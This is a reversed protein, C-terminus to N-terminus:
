PTFGVSRWLPAPTFRHGNTVVLSIRRLNAVNQLPDADVVILDARKGATVTGVEREVGMVRAPVLTAAQIAELPTFGAQAYLEIERHLSYGPVAQDTGAVIPVGAKHLAGILQLFAQLQRTAAAEREAPVGTHALPSALEPAVKAAGPEFDMIAQRAPHSFLEMLAVTPDVVTHHAVLFDLAQRTAPGHLDFDAGGPRVMDYIYHIHNVQDMGSDVGQYVTLGNPIHGTVTMGLGHATRTIAGLVPLTISSYIKIQDFGADHYRRVWSVGEEPTAAQEVGIARPGAGDIVGALFLRPGIGHGSAIAQRVGAIFDLENGVDRATTVGAALYIPGWEVQEYHAHMDWLGPLIFKGAVDVRATGKPVQVKGRPGVAAIRGGRVLVVADSVPLAGTADIVTGGVLAFDGTDSTSLSTLENLAAAGDAAARTVFRPLADEYGDRVAEFHDFEADTTVLAVLRMSDDTWATERGWILGAIGFRKLVVQLRGQAPPLTDLGRLAIRVVGSPLTALSDPKGHTAWFRLLAEQMAVPAYGAITFVRGSRDDVTVATDISSQRSTKGKIEFHRPTYDPRATLTATLPVRTGRDTFEFNTTLTLGSDRVVQYREEGIPQMFKHLVFRGSDVQGSLRPTAIAVLALLGFVFRLTRMTGSHTSTRM